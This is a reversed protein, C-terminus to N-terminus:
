GRTARTTSAATMAASLMHSLSSPLPSTFWGACTGRRAPPNSRPNDLRGLRPTPEGESVGVLPIDSSARLVFM